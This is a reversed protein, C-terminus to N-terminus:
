IFRFTFHQLMADRLSINQEKAPPYFSGGQPMQVSNEDSRFIKIQSLTSNQKSHSYFSIILMIECQSPLNKTHIVQCIKIQRIKYPHRQFGPM